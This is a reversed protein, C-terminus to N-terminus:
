VRTKKSVPKPRHIQAMLEKWPQWQGFGIEEALQILDVPLYVPENRKDHGIPRLKGALIARNLSDVDNGANAPPPFDTAYKSIVDFGFFLWHAEGLSWCHKRLWVEAREQTLEQIAFKELQVGEQAAKLNPAGSPSSPSERPRSMLALFELTEDLPSM